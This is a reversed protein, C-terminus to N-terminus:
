RHLAAEIQRLADHSLPEFPGIWRHAIRGQTDILFTEPVGRPRFKLSVTEAPDHLITFSVGLDDIFDRIPEAADRADISVGLVRLGRGAFREHLAQLAPMEERCPACWTAWINLLVAQGRLAQLAVTDGDLEAAAYVPAPDGAQLPRYADTGACAPLLALLTAPVLLPRAM